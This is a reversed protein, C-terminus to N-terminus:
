VKYYHQAHLLYQIKLILVKLLAWKELGDLSLICFKDWKEEKELLFSADIM